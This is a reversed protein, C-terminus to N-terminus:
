KSGDSGSKREKDNIEKIIGYSVYRTDWEPNIVVGAETAIERLSANIPRTYECYVKTSDDSFRVILKDEFFAYAIIEKSM